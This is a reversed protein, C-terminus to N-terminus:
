LGLTSVAFALESQQLVVDIQENWQHALRPDTSARGRWHVADILQVSLARDALLLTPLESANEVPCQRAEIAHAWDRRWETFRPWRRPIEAYNCALLLLRRQPLRLWVTLGRLLEPDDLPWAAFDPDVCVIRRAGQAIASDFGWRLATAFAARSDIAPPATTV